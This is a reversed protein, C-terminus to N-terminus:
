YVCGIAGFCQLCIEMEGAGEPQIFMTGLEKDQECSCNGTTHLEGVRVQLAYFDSKIKRIEDLFEGVNDENM